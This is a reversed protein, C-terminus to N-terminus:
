FYVQKQVLIIRPPLVPLGGLKHLFQQVNTFVVDNMARAVSGTWGGLVNVWCGSRDLDNLVRCLSERAPFIGM